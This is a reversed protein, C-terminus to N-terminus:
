PRTGPGRVLAERTQLDALALQFSSLDARLMALREENRTTLVLYDDMRRALDAIDETLDAIAQQHNKIVQQVLFEHRKRRERENTGLFFRTGQYAVVGMIVVAGIGTVMASFGLLGGFGLTALGTTLAVAGSGTGAASLAALPVGLGVAAAVIDKTRRELQSATIRGKAYDEEADLLRETEIVIEDAKEPFVLGAIATVRAREADALKADARSIWLLDKVLLALVATREPVALLDSLEVTLALADDAEGDSGETDAPAATIERRLVTRSEADLGITSAFLYLNSIERPDLLRDSKAQRALIRCYLLKAEDPLTSLDMPKERRRPIRKVVVTRAGDALDTAVEKARDATAGVGDLLKGLDRDEPQM